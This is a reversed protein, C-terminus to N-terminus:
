SPPRSTSTPGRRRRSATPAPAWTSTTSTSSWSRRSRRLRAGDAHALRAEAIKRRLSKEGMPLQEPFLNRALQMTITSAGSAGFGDFINDRVAGVLRVPDVGDHEFFRRDEIAVFALPVHRPLQRLEILQRREHSFQGIINGEADLVVSAQKPQLEAIQEVTPCGAACAQSWAAMAAGTGFAATGAAAAPACAIYYVHRRLANGHRAPRRARAARRWTM